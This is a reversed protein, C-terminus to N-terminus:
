SFKLNIKEFKNLINQDYDLCCLTSELVATLGVSQKIWNWSTKNRVMSVAM